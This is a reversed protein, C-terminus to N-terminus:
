GPNAPGQGPAYVETRGDFYHHVWPGKSYYRQELDQKHLGLVDDATAARLASEIVFHVAWTYSEATITDDGELVVVFRAEDTHGNVTPAIAQFRLYDPFDIGLSMVRMARQTAQAIESLKKMRSDSRDRAVRPEDFVSLTPGFAFPSEQWVVSRDPGAYHRLLTTFAEGLTGMALAYQSKDAFTRAEGLQRAVDRQTVLDIMDINDFDVDFVLPTADTFFNRVDDRAREITDAAPHTGHHKLAVRSDNLRKMARQQPLDVSAKKLEPWYQLFGIKPDPNTNLHDAALGLFLEVADHFTLVAESSLPAPRGCHAVGGVYLFRIFALQRVVPPTLSPAV